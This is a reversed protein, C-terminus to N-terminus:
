SKQKTGELWHGQSFCIKCYSHSKSVKSRGLL